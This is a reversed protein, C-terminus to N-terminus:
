CRRGRGGEPLGAVDHVGPPKAACALAAPWCCGLLGAIQQQCSTAETVLRARRAGLHRLRAWDADAREPLYCVLRAILKCILVAHGLLDTKDRTYDDAERALYVRLSQVCVFGMGADDALQM